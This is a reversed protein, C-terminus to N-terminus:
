ERVDWAEEGHRPEEVRRIEAEHHSRFLGNTEQAQDRLGAVTGAMERIQEALSPHLPMEDEMRGALSGLSGALSDWFDPMDKFFDIMDPASGPQFGAFGTEVDEAAGTIPSLGM